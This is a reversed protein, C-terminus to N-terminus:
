PRGFTDPFLERMEDTIPIAAPTMTHEDPTFGLGDHIMSNIKGDAYRVTVLGGCSCNWAEVRNM